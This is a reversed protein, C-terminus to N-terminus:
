TYTKTSRKKKRKDKKNQGNHQRNKSIYPNQNGRQNRWVRRICTTQLDSMKLKITNKKVTNAKDTKITFQVKTIIHVTQVHNEQITKTQWSHSYINKCKYTNIQTKTTNLVCEMDYSTRITKVTDHYTDITSPPCLNRYCVLEGGAKLPNTYCNKTKPTTNQWRNNTEKNM